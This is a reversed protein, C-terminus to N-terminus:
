VAVELLHPGPTALAASLERRLSALSDPRSAPVGLGGALRVWDVPPRSLDMMSLAKEGPDPV